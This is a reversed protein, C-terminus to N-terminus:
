VWKVTLTSKEIGETLFDELGQNCVEKNMMYVYAMNAMSDYHGYAIKEDKHYIEIYLESVSKQRGFLVVIENVDLKSEVVLVRKMVVEKTELMVAIYIWYNM